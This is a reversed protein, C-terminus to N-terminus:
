KRVFEAPTMGTHKKFARYFSTKNSFGCDLGIAQISVQQLRDSKLLEQSKSIRYGNILQYFNTHMYSNIVQTLHHPPVQLIEALGSLTLRPNLYLEQEIMSRNLASTIEHVQTSTLPATRYAPSSRFVQRIDLIWYGMLLVVLAMLASLIIEVVIFDAGKLVFGSQLVLYSISLGLYLWSFKKLLEPNYTKQHYVYYLASVVYAMILLVYLNFYIWLDLSMTGTPALEYYYAIQQQKEAASLLFTTPIQYLVLALAPLLHIGHRFTFRFKPQAYSRVFFYFAPGALFLFPYSVGLLHPWQKIVGTTFLLFTLLHLLLPLIAMSLLWKAMGLNSRILLVMLLVGLIM